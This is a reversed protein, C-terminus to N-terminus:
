IEARANSSEPDIVVGPKAGWRKNLYLRAPHEILHFAVWGAASALILGLVPSMGHHRYLQYFPQQWLYLSFSYTGLKRLWAFEFISRYWGPADAMANIAVAFAIPGGVLRVGPPVSWWYAAGGFMLAIPAVWPRTLRVGSESMSLFILGAAFIGLSAVETHFPYGGIKAAPVLTYVAIAAIIVTLILGIASTGRGAHTRCWLAALSLVVYSHEEVSLSWIHGLPMVWRDVVFYNNTFTLASLFEAASVPQDTLVWIGLIVALYVAVSPFVRAVRRRYFKGFGVEKVFLVNAMLLGSLVFFLGVGVTGLNIGPIAFFHGILLCSIAAGRWGDLYPINKEM